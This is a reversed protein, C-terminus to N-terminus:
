SAMEVSRLRGELGVLLTQLAAQDLVTQSAQKEEKGFDTKQKLVAYPISHHANM